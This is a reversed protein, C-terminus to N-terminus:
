ASLNPTGRSDETSAVVAAIGDTLPVRARWGTVATFAVPDAVLGRLDMPGAHEPPPVSRVPM